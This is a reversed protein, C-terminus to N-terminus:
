SSPIFEIKKGETYARLVEIMDLYYCDIVPFEHAFEGDRHYMAVSSFGDTGEGKSPFIFCGKVKAHTVVSSIAIHYFFQKVIDALGPANGLVTADYYKADVVHLSGSCDRLVIDTQLGRMQSALGGEARRYAPRPLVRNWGEEVGHLVQRLMCEWVIHFDEVGFHFGGWPLTSSQDLYDILSNALFIARTSYIEPLLLRLHKVWQARPIRPRIYRKLEDERHSLGDIWWGHEQTIELIVAAQIQALLSNQSDKTRTTLINPYIVDSNSGFYAQERIVTRPWDPKGAARSM